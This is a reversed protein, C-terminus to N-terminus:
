PRRTARYRYGAGHVGEIPDFGAEVHAFRNRLRAVLREISGDGVSARGPFAEHLLQDRTKVNGARRVLALLVFFETVMLRLDTGQWSARLRLPDVTLGGLTLPREELSLPEHGTLGARRILAAVRPMLDKITFPKAVYDDAPAGIAAAAADVMEENPALAILPMAPSRARLHDCVTAGDLGPISLSIVAADPRLRTFAEEAATGDAFTTVRHGDLRLARGIAERLTEDEEVVAVQRSPVRM